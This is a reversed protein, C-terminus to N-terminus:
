ASARRRKQYSSVERGTQVLGGRIGGTKAKGAVRGTASAGAGMGVLVGGAARARPDKSRMLANGTTTLVRGSIKSSREVGGANRKVATNAKNYNSKIKKAFGM